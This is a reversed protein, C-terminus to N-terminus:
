ITKDFHIDIVNSHMDHLTAILICIGMPTKTIFIIGIM